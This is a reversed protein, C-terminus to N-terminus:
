LTSLVVVLGIQNITANQCVFKNVYVDCKDAWMAVLFVM